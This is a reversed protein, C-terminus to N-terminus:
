SFVFRNNLKFNSDFFDIRPHLIFNIKRNLNFYYNRLNVELQNFNLDM